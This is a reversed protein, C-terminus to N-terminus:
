KRKREIIEKERKLTVWNFGRRLRDHRPIRRTLVYQRLGVASCKLLKAQQNYSLGIRCWERIKERDKNFISYQIVGKPKGVHIGRAKLVRLAEKTRQSISSREHEAM